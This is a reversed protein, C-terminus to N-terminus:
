PCTHSRQLLNQTQEKIVNKAVVSFTHVVMEEKSAIHQKYYGYHGPKVSKITLSGTDQSLKLSEKFRPITENYTYVENNTKNLTALLVFKACNHKKSDAFKWWIMEIERIEKLDTHLTVCQGEIVPVSTIIDEKVLVSNELDGEQVSSNGGDAAAALLPVAGNESHQNENSPVNCTEGDGCNPQLVYGNHGPVVSQLSELEEEDPGDGKDARKHMKRQFYYYIGCLVAAVALACVCVLAIQGTSLGPAAGTHCLRSIDLHTTQNRIPNNIVCSYTNKDQYEVELPLSLSISLDSVSINSLLSNGKYWSLTVHGVNVASCLLSCSSSQSSNRSIVPVPLLAYVVVSFKKPLFENGDIIQLFRYLGTHETTTDTITLSGTQNDLKLRERFREDLVDGYLSMKNAMRNIQAIRTSGSGFTWLILDAKPIETLDTCLTVSDGEMVAVSSMEDTHGFVGNAVLQVFFLAFM